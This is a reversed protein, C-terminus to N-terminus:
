IPGNYTLTQGTTYITANIYQVGNVTYFYGDTVWFDEGIATGLIETTTNDWAYFRVRTQVGNYNVYASGRFVGVPDIFSKSIETRNESSASVIALSSCALVATLMFLVKKM